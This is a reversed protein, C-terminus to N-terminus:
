IWNVNTKVGIVKYDPNRNTKENIYKNYMKLTSYYKTDILNGSPGFIQIRYLLEKM